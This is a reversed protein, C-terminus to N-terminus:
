PLENKLIAMLVLVCNRNIKEQIPIDAGEFDELEIVANSLEQLSKEHIDALHIPICKSARPKTCRIVEITHEALKQLRHKAPPNDKLEPSFDEAAIIFKHVISHSSVMRFIEGITMPADERQSYFEDTIERVKTNAIFSHVEPVPIAVDDACIDEKSVHHYLERLMCEDEDLKTIETYTMITQGNKTYKITYSDQEETEYNQHLTVFSHKEGPLFAHFGEHSFVTEKRWRLIPRHMKADRVLAEIFMDTTEPDIPVPVDSMKHQRELIDYLMALESTTGNKHWEVSHMVPNGDDDVVHFTHQCCTDTSFDCRLTTTNGKADHLQYQSHEDANKPTLKVWKNKPKHKQIDKILEQIYEDVPTETSKFDFNSNM